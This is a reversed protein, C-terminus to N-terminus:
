ASHRLPGKSEELYLFPRKIIWVAGSNELLLYREGPMLSQFQERFPFKAVDVRNKGSRYALLILTMM